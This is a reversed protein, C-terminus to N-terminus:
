KNAIAKLINLMSREFKRGWYSVLVETLFVTFCVSCFLGAIVFISSVKVQAMSLKILRKSQRNYKKKFLSLLYEHNAYYLGVIGSEQLLQTVRQFQNALVNFYVYHSDRKTYVTEDQIKFCKLSPVYIKIASTHFEPVHTMLTTNCLVLYIYTPAKATDNVVYFSSNFKDTINSRVFFEHFLNLYNQFVDESDVFEILIKYNREILTKFDPIVKPAPLVIIESTIIGEYCTSFIVAIFLLLIQLKYHIRSLEQKMFIMIVSFRNRKFYFYGALISLFLGIWIQSDFPKFYLSIYNFDRFKEEQECYVFYSWFHEVLTITQLAYHEQFNVSVDADYMLSLVTNMKPLKNGPVYRLTFNLHTSLIAKVAVHVYCNNEGGKRDRLRLYCKKLNMTQFTAGYIVRLGNLLNSVSNLSDWKQELSQLSYNSYASNSEIVKTFKFDTMYGYLAPIYVSIAKSEPDLAFILVKAKVFLSLKKKFSNAEQHQLLIFIFISEPNQYRRSAWELDMEPEHYALTTQIPISISCKEKYRYPDYLQIVRSSNGVKRITWLLHQPNTHIVNQALPIGLNGKTLDLFDVSCHQYSEDFHLDLSSFVLNILSIVLFLRVTQKM